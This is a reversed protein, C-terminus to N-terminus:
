GNFFGKILSKLLFSSDLFIKSCCRDKKEKESSIKESSIKNLLFSSIQNLRTKCGNNAQNQFDNLNCRNRKVLRSYISDVNRDKVYSIPGTGWCKDTFGTIWSMMPWDIENTLTVRADQFDYKKETM